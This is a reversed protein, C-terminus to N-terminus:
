TWEHSSNLRTSKRDSRDHECEMSVLARDVLDHVASGRGVAEVDAAEVLLPRRGGEVHDDEVPHATVVQADLRQTPYALCACGPQDILALVHEAPVLAVHTFM